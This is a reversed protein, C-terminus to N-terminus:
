LQGGVYNISVTGNGTFRLNNEGEKFFVRYLKQTGAKLNYTVGDYTMTMPASVIFEPFVRMRRIILSVDRTGNVVLAGTENIIGEEFDFVDWEWDVASSLIDYKYPEADVTVTFSVGHRLTKPKDVSVLGYYYFAADDDFIVQMKRGHCFNEVRSVVAQTQNTLCLFEIEIKRNEFKAEDTLADTLDITGDRLPVKVQKTQTKPASITKSALICGFETYFDKGGIKVSLM